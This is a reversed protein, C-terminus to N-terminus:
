RRRWGQKTNENAQNKLDRMMNREEVSKDKRVSVEKYNKSGEM